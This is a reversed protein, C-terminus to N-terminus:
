NTTRMRCIVFAYSYLSYLITSAVPLIYHYLSDKGIQIHQKIIYDQMGLLVLVTMGFLMNAGNIWFYPNKFLNVESIDIMYLRLLVLCSFIINLLQTLILSYNTFQEKGQWFFYNFLIFFLTLTAIIRFFTLENERLQMMKSYLFLFFPTQLLILINYIYYNPKPMNVGIIELTNIIILLPIFAILSHKNLGKHCIVALLLSLLEFYQFFKFHM